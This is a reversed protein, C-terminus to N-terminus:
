FSNWVMSILVLSVSVFRTRDFFFIEDSIIRPKLLHIRLQDKKKKFIIKACSFPRLGYLDIGIIRIRIEHRDFFKSHEFNEQFVPNSGIYKKVIIYSSEGKFVIGQRHCEILNYIFYLYIVRSELFSRRPYFM